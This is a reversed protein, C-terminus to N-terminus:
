ESPVTELNFAATEGTAYDGTNDFITLRWKYTGPYGTKYVAVAGYTLYNIDDGRYFVIPISVSKLSILQRAPLTNTQKHM